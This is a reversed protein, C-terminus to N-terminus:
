YQYLRCPKCALWLCPFWCVYKTKWFFVWLSVAKNLVQKGKSIFLEGQSEAPFVSLARALVSFDELGLTKLRTQTQSKQRDKPKKGISSKALLFSLKKVDKLIRIRVNFTLTRHVIYLRPAEDDSASNFSTLLLSIKRFYSRQNM